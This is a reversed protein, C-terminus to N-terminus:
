LRCLNLELQLEPACHHASHAPSFYQMGAFLELSELAVHPINKHKKLTFPCSAHHGKVCFYIKYVLSVDQKTKTELRTWVKGIMESFHHSRQVTSLRDARSGGDGEEAIRVARDQGKEQRMGGRTQSHALM